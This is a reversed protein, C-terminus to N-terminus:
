YWERSVSSTHLIVLSSAAPVVVTGVSVPAKPRAVSSTRAPASGTACAVPRYSRSM